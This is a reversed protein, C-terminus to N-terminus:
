KGKTSPAAAPVVDAFATGIRIEDYGFTKVGNGSQIAVEDVPKLTLGTIASTPTAPASSLDPNVFVQVSDSGPKGTSEIRLVFLVATNDAPVGLDQTQTGVGVEWDKGYFDKAIRIANDDSGNVAAFKLFSYTSDTQGSDNRALFSIWTVGPAQFLPKALGRLLPSDGDSTQMHRGNTVIAQPGNLSGDVVAGHSNAGERGHWPEGWGTGGAQGVLDGTPYDFGEYVVPDAPLSLAGMILFAGIWPCILRRPSLSLRSCHHTM